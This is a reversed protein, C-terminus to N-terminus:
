LLCAYREDAVRRKSLRWVGRNTDWLEADTRTPDWGVWSRGMAEVQPDTDWAPALIFNIAM